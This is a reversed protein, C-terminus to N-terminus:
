TMTKENDTVSNIDELWKKYKTETQKGLAAATKKIERRLKGDNEWDELYLDIRKLLELYDGENLVSNLVRKDRLFDFYYNYGKSKQCNSKFIICPTGGLSALVSPHFRGSILLSANGLISTMVLSNVENKIMDVGSRKSLEDLFWEKRRLTKVIYVKYGKNRIYKVIGDWKFLADDIDIEDKTNYGGILVYPVDFNFKGYEFDDEPSTYVMDGSPILFNNEKEFYKYWVFLAEPIYLTDIFIKKAYDYSVEDRVIMYDIYKTARKCINVVNENNKGDADASCVANIYATKAGMQKGLYLIALYFLLHNYIPCEESFIMSGEGNIIVMDSHLINSILKKVNDCNGQESLMRDAIHEPSEEGFFPVGMDNDFVGMIEIDSDLFIYKLAKCTNRAGLNERGKRDLMVVKM